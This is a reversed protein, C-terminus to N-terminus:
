DIQALHVHPLPIAPSTVDLVYAQPWAVPWAFLREVHVVVALETMPAIVNRCDSRAAEQGWRQRPWGGRHGVTLLGFLDLRLGGQAELRISRTLTLQEPENSKRDAVPKEAPACINFPDWAREAHM